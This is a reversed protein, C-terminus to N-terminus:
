VTHPGDEYVLLFNSNRTIPTGKLYIEISVKNPASAQTIGNIKYTSPIPFSINTGELREKYIWDGNDGRDWRIWVDYENAQRIENDGINIEVADWAFSAISGNKNFTISGSNFTYGPEIINVPSWHSYRNRDESIVRYRVVYGEKDVIMPPLNVNKIRFKKIQQAM